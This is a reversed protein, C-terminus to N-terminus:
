EFKWKWGKEALEWIGRGSEVPSKILGLKCASNRAFQTNKQWRPVGGGVPAQWYPKSFENKNKEFVTKEVVVKEASGGNKKLIMIIEKILMMEPIAKDPQLSKQSVHVIEGNNSQEKHNWVKARQNQVAYDTLVNSCFHSLEIGASKALGNLMEYTSEPLFM